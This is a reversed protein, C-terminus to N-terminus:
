LTRKADPTTTAAAAEDDAATTTPHIAPNATTDQVMTLTSAILTAGFTLVFLQKTMAARQMENPAMGNRLGRMAAFQNQGSMMQPNRMLQANQHNERM